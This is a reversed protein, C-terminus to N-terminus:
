IQSILMAYTGLASSNIKFSVDVQIVGVGAM